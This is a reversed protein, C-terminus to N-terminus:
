HFYRRGHGGNEYAFLHGATASDGNPWNSPCLYVDVVVGRKDIWNSPIGHMAWGNSDFMHPLMGPLQQESMSLAVLALFIPLEGILGGKAPNSTYDGHYTTPLLKSPWIQDHRQKYLTNKTGANSLYSSHEKHDFRLCHWAENAPPTSADGRLVRLGRGAIYFVSFTKYLALSQPFLGENPIAYIQEGNCLWFQVNGQHLRYNYGRRTSPRWYGHEDYEPRVEPHERIEEIRFIYAPSPTMNSASCAYTIPSDGASQTHHAAAEFIHKGQGSDNRHVGIWWLKIEM